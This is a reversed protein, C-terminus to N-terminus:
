YCASKNDIWYDSVIPDEGRESLWRNQLVYAEREKAAQCPYRKGSLAQAHHVLEHVVYSQSRISDPDWIVHNVIIQGPVYAAVSRARQAGQLGLTFKLRTGSAVGIPLNRMKVQMAEGVWQALPQMEKQSILTGDEVASWLPSMCLVALILFLGLFRKM